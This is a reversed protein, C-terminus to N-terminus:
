RGDVGKRRRVVEEFAGVVDHEHLWTTNSGRKARDRLERDTEQTATIIKRTKMENNAHVVKLLKVAHPRRTNEYLQLAALIQSPSPKITPSSSSFSSSSSPPLITQLSLFLAYADDIALSGGTAFAGGHAHAADGILTVRGGFIWTPLSSGCFYNPYYRVHPCVESLQKVVPNWDVYKERLLQIDAEKDWQGGDRFKRIAAEDKPDAYIGGQVTFLDRALRTAFFNTDPGWWHTSDLPVGPIDDVLSAPFIGRFATHGSWELEFDPAFSQRVGSSIGDAGVLLDAVATSGDAFEMRVEGDDEHALTVSVLKKKLHITDRPVHKLLAQQLHGRHFRATYHLEEHVDEYFDEGIIENTKWHRYFRSIPNPGRYGVESSICDELDLRQLTRLGNPGLTISAGIEKLETAKEYLEVKVHPLKRLAIAATLGAIGTGVIAIRLVNPEAELSGM